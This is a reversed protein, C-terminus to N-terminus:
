CSTTRADSRRHRGRRPAQGLPHHRGLRRDLPPLRAPAVRRARGAARRPRHDVGRGGGALRGPRAGGLRRGREDARGRHPASGARAARDRRRVGERVRAGAAHHAPGLRLLRRRQLRAGPRALRGDRRTRRAARGEARRDRRRDAARHRLRRGRRPRAGARRRRRHRRGSVHQADRVRRHLRGGRGRAIRHPDDRIGRVRTRAPPHAPRRPGAARHPRRRRDRDRRRPQACAGVEAIVGGDVILDAAGGGELRAGRFLLTETGARAAMPPTDLATM